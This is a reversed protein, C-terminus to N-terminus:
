HHTAHGPDGSVSCVLRQKNSQVDCTQYTQSDQFQDVLSQNGKHFIKDSFDKSAIFSDVM